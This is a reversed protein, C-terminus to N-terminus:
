FCFLEIWSLGVVRVNMNVVVGCGVDVMVDSVVYLRVNLMFVLVGFIKVVLVVYM